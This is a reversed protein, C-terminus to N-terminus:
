KSFYNSFWKSEPLPKNEPSRRSTAYVFVGTITMYEGSSGEEIKEEFVEIIREKNHDLQDLPGSEKNPFSMMFTSGSSEIINGAKDTRNSDIYTWYIGFTLTDHAFLTDIMQNDFINEPDNVPFYYTYHDSHTSVFSSPILNLSSSSPLLPPLNLRTRNKLRAKRTKATRIKSSKQSLWLSSLLKKNEHSPKTKGTKWRHITSPSLGMTAAIDKAYFRNLLSKLPRLM